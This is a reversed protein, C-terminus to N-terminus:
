QCRSEIAALDAHCQVCGASSARLLAGCRSLWGPPHPNSGAGGLAATAHCTVCDRETHCSVCAPMSRRAEIAHHRGAVVRGSWEDPPPHFRATTREATPSSMAVGSRQHCAECFSSVRHCSNCSAASQRAEAGHMSLFDNPHNRRDRVRGDHCGVCESERHCVTCRQSNQAAATRHNVWFDADHHLGAMWEPPNMWGEDFETRLLGDRQTLHCTVCAAAASGGDRHCQFCTRMEPLDLRTGLTVRRMDGHCTECRQGRSVHERHSFLLNPTPIQVRAIRFPARADFGEHCADCRAAPRAVRTIDHRDISHCPTCASEAPVLRDSALTSRAADTHCRECTVGPMALHRRHDFRLPLQQEPFIVPSPGRTRQARDLMHRRRAIEPTATPRLLQCAVLTAIVVVAGVVLAGGGGRVTGSDGTV